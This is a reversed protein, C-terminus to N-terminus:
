VEWARFDSLGAAGPENKVRVELARDATIRFSLTAALVGDDLLPMSATLTGDEVRAVAVQRPDTSWKARAM